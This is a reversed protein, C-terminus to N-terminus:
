GPAQAPRGDTDLSNGEPPPLPITVRIRTGQGPQSDVALSGGVAEARERMGVLGLHGHRALDLWDQPVAFGVGDDQIDLHVHQETKALRLAVRTAQAHRVINALCEQYIRYLTVRVAEPLVPGGPTEELQFHIGPHKERFTDLHARIAKALRSKGLIPPRLDWAYTRLDNIQELLIHHIYELQQSIEAPFDGQRLSHLAYTAGILAQVPGDHLDRSIRQREQERQEILRHHVEIRAANERAQEEMRVRETIDIFLTAFQGPQTCFAMVEYVKGLSHAAHQFHAPQGTLAVEGYTEIWYPEIEPLVELATRGVAQERSLGTFEEFAPNVELFRYDVPKGSPDCLLEHLAFGENLRTFLSRYREESARLAEEAQKRETIENELDQFLRANEMALSIAAALRTAFDIHVPKFEFGPGSYNFFIVGVAEERLLVPVVLVSRIGWKRLHDRNVREDTDTDSIAVPQRSQIALMAHREQDDEMCLGIVEQPFGHVYSVVWGEAKRLSLAATESGLVNAAASVAQQMVEDVDLTSLLVQDIENLATNFIDAQKQETLDTLTVVCGIIEGLHNSLPAANILLYLPFDYQRGALRTQIKQFSTGKLVAELTFRKEGTPPEMQVLPFAKDFPRYLPSQGTIQCALKSARIVVGRTDCVVIAEAVQDLISRALREAALIEESHKQETLDTVVLSLMRQGKSEVRGISLLAPLSSGDGRQLNLEGKSSGDQATQLLGQYGPQHPPPIFRLLSSGLLSELPVRLMDALRQNGYLIMGEDTLNAVGESINEVMVRYTYDAGELTYIQEGEETSIVLADVEGSQIARLAEEAAELRALLGANHQILEDVTEPSDPM